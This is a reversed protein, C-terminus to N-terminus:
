EEKLLYKNSIAKFSLRSGNHTMETKPRVIVGERDVDPTINSKGDAYLLLEAVTAPLTFAVDLVPVTKLNLSMIYRVFDEFSLYAGSAINYANYFYITQGVLKLPNGQIGEGVLEGQIAMNDSLKEEIGMERALRWQTNGESELLELNRSCVGFVGDKKFYTTSSGDLKETVYFGGFLEPMNQVREEDTKPIFGPFFGKAKGALQAPIPPEYKIVGIPESIDTGVGMHDVIEGFSTLPLALGQSIQGRLKITKLRIGVREVGDVMMRKTTSGRQLFLFPEAVPLLSDIEFYVCLDGISFEGKKVVVWWENIRAKEIADAGAIPQVEEIKQISALKRM